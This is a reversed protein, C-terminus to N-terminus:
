LSFSAFPLIRDYYHLLFWCAIDLHTVFARILPNGLKVVTVFFELDWPRLLVFTEKKGQKMGLLPSM